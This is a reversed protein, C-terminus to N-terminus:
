PKSRVGTRTKNKDDDMQKGKGGKNRDRFGFSQIVKDIRVIYKDYPNLLKSYKQNPTVLKLLKGREILFKVLCAFDGDGTVILAKDYNSYEIAAANLVLEADVNGKVTEKGNQFYRVTPKFVLIFGAEQLTTYLEQNDDVLGIFVYAKTISFKNKLYLRFKAYDIKWGLSNVGLNLNQSDIFAYNNPKPKPSRTNNRNRM